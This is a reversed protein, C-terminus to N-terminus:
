IAGAPNLGSMGRSFMISLIGLLFAYRAIEYFRSSKSQLWNLDGRIKEKKEEQANRVLGFHRYIIPATELYLLASLGAVLLSAWGIFELSQNHSNMASLPASQISAALLTFVLAVFYFALKRQIDAAIEDNNAM